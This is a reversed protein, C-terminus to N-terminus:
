LLLKQLAPRADKVDSSTRESPNHNVTDLRKSRGRSKVVDGWMAWILDAGGRKWLWQKQQKRREIENEGERGRAPPADM